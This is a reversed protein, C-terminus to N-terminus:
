LYVLIRSYRWSFEQLDDKQRVRFWYFTARELLEDDKNVYKVLRNEYNSTIGNSNFQQFDGNYDEFYWNTVDLFTDKSLLILGREFDEYERAIQMEFHYFRFDGPYHEINAYFNWSGVTEINSPSISSVLEPDQLTELVISAMKNGSHTLYQNLNPYAFDFNTANRDVVFNIMSGTLNVFDNRWSYDDFEGSLQDFAYILEEQVVEDSGSAVYRRLEELVKTKRYICAVSEALCNEADQWAKNPEILTSESFPIPFVFSSLPDGFVAMPSNLLPQSYIMAEGMTAGRFLADMFPVPRLFVAASDGSMCGASSIYGERIALIPWTNADLDRMTIGGIFDANYFFARIEATSKFYSLSGRDAGWGWFFSDDEVSSFFPDRSLSVQSTRQVTMGLRDVYNNSFDVMQSTYDSAGSFSYASYSDLYFNGGVQLRGKAIEINDLWAQSILNPGDIRTCILSQFADLGDYRRFVQRNYLPNIENKVFSHFIRALRSTSSITDSGDRFGGPVYPMLIIAYVSRNKVPESVLASRLPIEVETQFSIYDSLIEINSCPVSILQDDDLSYIEKYRLASALSDADGERYVCVINDKSLIATPNAITQQSGEEPTPGQIYFFVCSVPSYESRNGFLDVTVIKYCYTNGLEATEDVFNTTTSTGILSYTGNIEIARYIEYYAFDSPIAM